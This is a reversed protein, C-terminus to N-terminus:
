ENAQRCDEKPPSVDPPGWLLIGEGQQMDTQLTGWCFFSTLSYVLAHTCTLADM